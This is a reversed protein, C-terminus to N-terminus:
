DENKEEMFKLVSRRIEEIVDINNDEKLQKICEDPVTVTVSNGDPLKINDIM